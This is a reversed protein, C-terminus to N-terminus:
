TKPTDAKVREAMGERELRKAIEANPAKFGRGVAQAGSPNHETALERDAFGIKAKMDIM